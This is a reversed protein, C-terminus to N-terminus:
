GAITFAVTQSAGGAPTAILEYTGPALKHGAIKGNWAFKDAGPNGAKVLKGRQAILRTCRKDRKNHASPAVCELRRRMM